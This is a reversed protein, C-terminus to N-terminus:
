VRNFVEFIQTETSCAAASLCVSVDRKFVPYGKGRSLLALM